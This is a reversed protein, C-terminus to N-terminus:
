LFASPDGGLFTVMTNNNNHFRHPVIGPTEGGTSSNGADLARLFPDYSILVGVAAGHRRFPLVSQRRLLVTVAAVLNLHAPAM